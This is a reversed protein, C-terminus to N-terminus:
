EREYIRQLEQPPVGLRYLMAVRWMRAYTRLPGLRAFRRASTTVTAEALALRGAGRLRRCLEFEEMLPMDPIGGVEELVARRMFMVQDGAIRGAVHLRTACRWRSGLMLWSPDRFIKWFGGGALTADRLSRLTAEGANPPLWTDAHVLMVVDGRAQTAGRRMQGGRGPPSAVVHCGLEAAVARTADTSGGDVLIIEEIEPIARLHKVTEPLAAAENLAPIVVSITRSAPRDQYRAFLREERWLMMGGVGAWLLCVLSVLLAAAVADTPPVGYLGLLFLASGERVGAGALTVPASALLGIVPFTWLLAAWPIASSSVALLGLAPLGCWFVQALLGLLPGQVAVRPVAALKAASTGLTSTKMGPPRRVVEYGILALVMAGVAWWGPRPSDAQSLVGFAGSLVAAGMTLVGLLVAGGANLLRDLLSAALVDAVPHRYWRAYLASRAAEGGAPGCRFTTFFHGILVARYSALPHVTAGMLRLMLHWRWAALVIAPGFAALTVACWGPHVQRFAQTLGAADIRGFVFWLMVLSVALAGARRWTFMRNDPQSSM